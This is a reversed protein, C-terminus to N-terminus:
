WTRPPYGLDPDDAYIKGDQDMYISGTWDVVEQAKPSIDPNSAGPWCRIILPHGSWDIFPPYYCNSSFYVGNLDDLNIDLDGSWIGSTYKGNHEVYYEREAERICGMATIAEGAIVKKKISSYLPWSISALIGIIIVVIILEILTFGSKKM